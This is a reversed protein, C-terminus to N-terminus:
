LCLSQGKTLKSTDHTEKLHGIHWAHCTKCYYIRMLEPNFDKELGQLSRIHAEAKGRSKHQQKRCTKFRM